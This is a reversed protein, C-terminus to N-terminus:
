TPSKTRNVHFRLQSLNEYPALMNATNPFARTIHSQSSGKVVITLNDYPIVVHMFFM